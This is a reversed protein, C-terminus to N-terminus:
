GGGEVGSLHGGMVCESCGQYIDGGGEEVWQVGSLNREMWGERSLHRWNNAESSEM